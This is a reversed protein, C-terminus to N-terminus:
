CPPPPWRQFHRCVVPKANKSSQINKKTQTGFKMLIPRYIASECCKVSKLSPPPWRQFHRYVEPKANKLGLMNIKTQTGFKMSIPSYNAPLSEKIPKKLKHM